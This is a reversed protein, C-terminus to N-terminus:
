TCAIQISIQEAMGSRPVNSSDGEMSGSTEEALAARSTIVDRDAINIVASSTRISTHSPCHMITLTPKWADGHQDCVIKTSNLPTEIAFIFTEDHSVTIHECLRLPYEQGICLRDQDPLNRQSPSFYAAQHAFKCQSCHFLDKAGPSHISVSKNANFDGCLECFAKKLLLRGVHERETKTLRSPQLRYRLLTGSVTYAERFHFSWAEDGSAGRLKKFPEEAFLTVFLRSSILLERPLRHRM